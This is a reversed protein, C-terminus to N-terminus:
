VRRTRLVMGLGALGVALLTLSAPEPTTAAPGIQVTLSDAHVGTGWTYVYTGPTVGLSAFTANNWTATESLSSGSTYNSPVDLQFGANVGAIPGSGSSADFTFLGSGFNPGTLTHYVTINGSAGILMTGPTGTVQPASQGTFLVSLDTLDFSGSGSAVVNTIGGGAPVEQLSVVYAAQAPSAFQALALAGAGITTNRFTSFM